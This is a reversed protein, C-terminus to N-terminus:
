IYIKTTNPASPLDYNIIIKQFTPRKSINVIRCNKEIIHASNSTTHEQTSFLQKSNKIHHIWQNLQLSVVTGTSKSLHSTMLTVMEHNIMISMFFVASILPGSITIYSHNQRNKHGRFWM